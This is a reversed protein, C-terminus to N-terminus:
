WDKPAGFWEQKIDEKDGLRVILNYDAIFEDVVVVGLKREIIPLKECTLFALSV